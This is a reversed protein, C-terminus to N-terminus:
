SRNKHVNWKIGWKKEFKLKNEHFIRQNEEDSHKKFSIGHFHHIFVDEACILNLGELEIKLSLDDDEFMGIRYREDLGGVRMYLERSILCCYLALVQINFSVGDYKPTRLAAFTNIDSLESYDVEIKAENGIANTVPGVMGASPNKIIHRYLRFMWGPTVITDNNLFILYEGTAVGAGQNNAAAFGLNKKNKIFLINQHLSYYGDIFEVTGDTSANDVIVVEYNPYETNKKISELCLKTYDLNNFTIVIISIKPFLKTVADEFYGAKNIDMCDLRLVSDQNRVGAKDLSTQFSVLLLDSQCLLLEENKKALGSTSPTDAKVESLDYLIKWGYKERLRVVLKRWYHFDTILVATTIWCIDRIEKISNQLGEINKESIMLQDTITGDPLSLSVLYIDQDCLNIVSGHDDMANIQIYFIRHGLEVLQSILQQTRYPKQEWGASSIFIVDPSKPPKNTFRSLLTNRIEAPIGSSSDEIFAKISPNISKRIKQNRNRKFFVKVGQNKLASLTDTIYHLFHASRSGEPVMQDLSNAIRILPKQKFKMFQNYLEFYDDASYQIPDSDISNSELQTLIDPQNESEDDKAAQENHEPIQDNKM